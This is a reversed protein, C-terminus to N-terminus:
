IQNRLSKNEINKIDIDNILIRSVERFKLIYKMITSKGSGSGGIIGIVDGKRAQLHVHSIIEKDRMMVSDIDVNISEVDNYYINFCLM